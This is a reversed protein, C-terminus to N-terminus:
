KEGSEKMEREVAFSGKRKPKCTGDRQAQLTCEQLEGVGINMDETGDKEGSDKMEREPSIAPPMGINFERNEKPLGTPTGSSDQSEDHSDALALSGTMITVALITTLSIKLM